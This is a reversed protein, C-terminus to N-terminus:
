PAICWYATATLSDLKWDLPQGSYWIVSFVAFQRGVKFTTPLTAQVSPDSLSNRGTQDTPIVVPQPNENLYGFYILCGVTGDPNTYVSSIGDGEAIPRVPAYTPTITPAVTPTEPTPSSVATPTEPTVTPTIPTASPTVPTQSPPVKTPTFTLTPALTNTPEPPSNTPTRTPFIPPQPTLTKTPATTPRQTATATRTSATVGVTPSVTASRVLTATTQAQTATLNIQTLRPTQSLQPQQGEPTPTLTPIQSIAGPKATPLQLFVSSVVTAELRAEELSQDKQLDKMFAPVNISRIKDYPWPSYDAALLSRTNAPPTPLLLLAALQGCCILTVLVLPILILWLLSDSITRKRKEQPETESSQAM